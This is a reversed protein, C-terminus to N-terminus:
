LIWGGGLLRDGQYCVAAQGPAVGYCPQHFRVRFRDPGLPEVAAPAAPTRYRIKVEAEFARDPPEVLWHVGSATLEWRALEERAGIVVTRTQPDIRVVFRRDGLAVRLGKRQGITFHEIGPHQGVVRGDTTVIPGSTDLGPRRQRVLRVHDQDPVFCIEQSEPKEAVRLGWQAAWSRIQEKRYEGLPLLIRGLRHRPIGFLVYSQDKTEDVGRYLALGDSAPRIQAYHGTAVYQAGLGDAYEFLKGFKLQTNCVICPNPTRGSVYEQVFYEIIQEFEDQFNLVYFPIGLRDAVRRADAADALSCCTKITTKAGPPDAHAESGAASFRSGSCCLTESQGAHAEPLGSVGHRMFVGIVEHGQQQLLWAAVSSDVGGSM